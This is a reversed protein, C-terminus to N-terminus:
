PSANAHQQGPPAATHLDDFKWTDSTNAPRTELPQTLIWQLPADEGERFLRWNPNIRQDPFVADVKSEPQFRYKLMACSARLKSLPLTFWYNEMFGNPRAGTPEGVLIAQTERRFDTVNTMAASFTARGTIVYLHGARNIAPMFTIKYVLYERGKTYNGGGNWRMDLILRDVPNKAVFELLRASQAELDDYSRFDAYVTKSDALYTFWLPDDAHQFPLPEPMRPVEGSNGIEASVPRIRLKFRHGSDDEFTFDALGVERLVGLAALPEANMIHQAGSNLVYWPNEGQPILQQLRSQVDGM